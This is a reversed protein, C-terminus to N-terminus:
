WRITMFLREVHGSQPNPSVDRCMWWSICPIKMVQAISLFVLASAGGQTGCAGMGVRARPIHMCVRKEQQLRCIYWGVPPSLM